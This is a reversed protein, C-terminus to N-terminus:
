NKSAAIVDVYKVALNIATGTFTHTHAAGTFAVAVGSVGHSHAANSGNAQTSIGTGAGYIGIGTYAGATSTPAALNWYSGPNVPWNGYAGQGHAHTPDAVGHAHGPDNIGHNHSPMQATTIATGDVSGSVANTGSATTNANTGSVAQSAFATTFAVTGGTGATGSVVRLAANDNTTIKTWGTPAATQQFILVTGSAFESFGAPLDSQVLSRFGPVAAAGSSPGAFVQNATQVGALENYQALTLHYYQSAAGGQLGGLSNHDAVTTGSFVQTFASDIETATAAGNQVIIRGVLIAMTSLIAPPTPVSATIAQNLNYSGTGLVYAIKPLGSGDIYRYVWNVAYQSAALSALNTGNDYQTNNYTSVTSSTWAGASHYWFEANSSASTQATENYQNVGYWIVGAGVTIVNGTSEGLALGSAWQYRNTQVLRRNLRSATSLGWNIPQYHVATGNRWLLTAGVIASNDINGVNTTVSYVPTGSNYSVVLYNASQDTLALGSAAPITYTKLDGTWGTQSFLLAKVSSASFTAGGADVTITPATLVGPTNGRLDIQSIYSTNKSFYGNAEQWIDGTLPATPAVGQPINFSAAATTSPNFTVEGNADQVVAKAAPYVVFIDKIGTSFNVLANSNSSRLPTTRTLANSSVSYSGLGVEWNTGTGQDSICYYCTNGDGIGSSFSQYPGLAVGLLTAPGTGTVATTERVRDNNILAM